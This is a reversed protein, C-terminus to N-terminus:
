SADSHHTFYRAMFYGRCPVNALFRRNLAPGGDAVTDRCQVSTRDRHQIKPATAAAESKINCRRSARSNRRVYFSFHVNELLSRCFLTGGNASPQEDPKDHIKSPSLRNNNKTITNKLLEMIYSIWIEVRIGGDPQRVMM